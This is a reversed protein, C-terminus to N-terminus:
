KRCSRRSCEYRNLSQQEKAVRQRDSTLAADHECRAKSINQSTKLHKSINQSTKLHKSINPRM